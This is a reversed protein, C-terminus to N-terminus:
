IPKKLKRVVTKYIIRQQTNPMKLKANGKFRYARKPNTDKMQQSKILM